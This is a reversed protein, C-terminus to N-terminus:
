AALMEGDDIWSPWYAPETTPWDDSLGYEITSILQRSARAPFYPLGAAALFATPLWPRAAAGLLREYLFRYPRFACIRACGLDFATAEILPLLFGEADVARVEKALMTRIRLLEPYIQRQLRISELDRDDRAWDNVPVDPTLAVELSRCIYRQTERSFSAFERLEALLRSGKLDCGMPM